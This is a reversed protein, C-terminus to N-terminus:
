KLDYNHLKFTNFIVDENINGLETKKNSNENDVLLDLPKIETKWIFKLMGFNYNNLYICPMKTSSFTVLVDM